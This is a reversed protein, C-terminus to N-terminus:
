AALESLFPKARVWLLSGSATQKTDIHGFQL